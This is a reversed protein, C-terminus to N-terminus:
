DTVDDCVSRGYHRLQNPNLLSQKLQKGYWLVLHFYLTVTEGTGKNTWATEASVVPINMTSVIMQFRFSKAHLATSNVLLFFKSWRRM